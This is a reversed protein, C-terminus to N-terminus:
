TVTSAIGPAALCQLEGREAWAAILDRVEDFALDPLADAAFWRADAADDGARLSGGIVRAAYDHVLTIGNVWIGLLGIVEVHLGTEELAERVTTDYPAEGREVFGAPLSWLGKGPEFTRQVLLVQGVGNEVRTVFAAAAVKPDVFHIYNCQPCFQRLKGYLERESLPTACHPCYNFTEISDTV